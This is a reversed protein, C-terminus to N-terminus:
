DLGAPLLAPEDALVIRNAYGAATIAAIQAPTLPGHWRGGGYVIGDIEVITGIHTGLFQRYRASRPVGTGALESAVWELRAPHPIRHFPEIPTLFYADPASVEPPHLTVHAILHALTVTFNERPFVVPPHLTVDVALLPLQVVGTVAPSYLTVGVALNALAVAQPEFGVLAVAPSHMTVPVALHAHEVSITAIFPAPTRDEGRMRYSGRFVSGRDKGRMRIPRHALGTGRLRSM